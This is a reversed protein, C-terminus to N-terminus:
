KNCLMLRREPKAAFLGVFSKVRCESLLRYGSETRTYVAACRGFRKGIYGALEHAPAIKTFLSPVAFSWRPDYRSSGWNQRVIVYRPEGIPSFM